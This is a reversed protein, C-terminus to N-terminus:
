RRRTHIYRIWSGQKPTQREPSRDQPTRQWTALLCYFYIRCFAKRQSQYKSFSFCFFLSNSRWSLVKITLFWHNRQTMETAKGQWLPSKILYSWQSSRLNAPPNRIFLNIKCYSIIYLINLNSYKLCNHFTPLFRSIMDLVMSARLSRGRM